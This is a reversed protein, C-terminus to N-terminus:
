TPHLRKKIWLASDSIARRSVDAMSIAELFSHTTGPYVEAEVDVGFAKLKAAMEVNEDHLVDREAIILRAPPLETLNARLPSVLPDAFDDPSRTYCEWFDQMEERSLVYAPDAYREYSKTDFRGDYVGYYLLMGAVGGLEGSEKLALCTAVALNAGASDGGILLQEKDIGTLKSNERLWGIVAMIENLQVPYRVDPSLSYEVGIVAIEAQSALERMIRDHTELSFLMWGGGHLYILAPQTKGPKTNIVRIRVSRSDFPVLYECSEEIPPGGATLPERVKEAIQRRERYSLRRGGALEGSKELLYSVFQRIQPDFEEDLPSDTNM